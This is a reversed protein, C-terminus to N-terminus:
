PTSTAVPNKQLAELQQRYNSLMALKKASDEIPGALDEASTSQSTITSQTGLAAILKQIGNKTARIKLYAQAANGTTLESALIACNDSTDAQCAAQGANYIAAVKQEEADIHITHQYALYHKQSAPKATQDKALASTENQGYASASREEKKSCGSLLINLLLLTILLHKM